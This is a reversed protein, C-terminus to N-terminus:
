LYLLLLPLLSLQAPYFNVIPGRRAMLYWGAMNRHRLMIEVILFSAQLSLRNQENAAFDGLVMTLSVSARIYPHIYTYIHTHTHTHV